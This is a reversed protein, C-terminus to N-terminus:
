KDRSKIDTNVAKEAFWFSRKKSKKSLYDDMTARAIKRNDKFEQKESEVKLKKALKKNQEDIELQNSQLEMRRQEEILKLAELKKTAIKDYHSQKYFDIKDWSQSNRQKGIYGLFKHNELEEQTPEVKHNRFFGFLGPKKKLKLEMRKDKIPTEEKFVEEKIPEINTSDPKMKYNDSLSKHSINFDFRNRSNLDGFKLKEIKSLERKPKMSDIRAKGEAIVKKKHKQIREAKVRGIHKHLVADTHRKHGHIDLSGDSLKKKSDRNVITSIINVLYGTLKSRNFVLIYAFFLLIILLSVFWVLGFSSEVGTESIIVDKSNSEYIENRIASGSIDLVTSKKSVSVVGSEFKKVIPIPKNYTIFYRLINKNSFEDVSSIIVENVGAVLTLSIHNESSLLVKSFFENGLNKVSVSTEAGDESDVDFSYVPASVEIDGSISSSLEVFIKNPSGLVLNSEISNRAEDSVELYYEYFNSFLVDEDIFSERSGSYIKKGDKFLEYNVDSILDVSETWSLKLFGSSTASFSLFVDSPNKTDYYFDRVFTEKYNSDECSFTLEYDGQSSLDLDVSFEENDELFNETYIKSDISIMRCSSADSDFIFEDENSFINKVDIDFSSGLSITQSKYNGLSDFLTLVVSGSSFPLNINEFISKGSLDGTLKLENQVIEYKQLNSDTASFKLNFVNDNKIVFVDSIEPAFLDLVEFDFSFTDFNGAGDTVKFRLTINGQYTLAFDYSNSSLQGFSQVNGSKVEFVEVFDVNFDDSFTFYLKLLKNQSDIISNQLNFTPKVSDFFISKSTGAASVVFETSNLVLSVSTMYDILSFDYCYEVSCSIFDYSRLTSNDGLVMITLPSENQLSKLSVQYDNLSFYSQSNGSNDLIEFGFILSFSM